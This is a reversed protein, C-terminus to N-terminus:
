WRTSIPPFRINLPIFCAFHVFSIFIRNTCMVASGLFILVKIGCKTSKSKLATILPQALQGFARTMLEQIFPWEGFRRSM